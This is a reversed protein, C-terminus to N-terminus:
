LDLMSWSFAPHEYEMATRVVDRCIRLGSAGNTMVVVGSRERQSAVAFCKFAGNDGWHWFSDRDDREHLGWGLGWSLADNVKVHPSLMERVHEEAIHIRSRGPPRLLITIFRAFEEPTTHLSWAANGREPKGKEVPKGERDHGQAAQREYDDIWTYSSARLGLPELLRAKMFEAMPQGSRREVVSQLYVYGEGSYGFREGPTFIITLPQGRRRWNPFGTTHGLVRRVTIQQLRPEDPLYPEPLYSALSADMDIKGDESLKMAAYAFVPKSLSAGEFVTRRTVPQGTAASAVGFGQAWVVRANRVLAISVGPVSEKAMREPLM